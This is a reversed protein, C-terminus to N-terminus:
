NVNELLKRAKKDAKKQSQLTWFPHDECKEFYKCQKGLCNHKRMTKRSIFGYHKKNHCIGVRNDKSLSTAGQMFRIGKFDSSTTINYEKLASVVMNVQRSM